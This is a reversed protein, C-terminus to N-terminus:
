TFSWNFYNVVQVSDHLITGTEMM